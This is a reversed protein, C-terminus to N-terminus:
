LVVARRRQGHQVAFAFSNPLSLRSDFCIRPISKRASIALHSNPSVCAAANSSISVLVTTVSSRWWLRTRRRPTSSSPVLRKLTAVCIPIHWSWDRGDSALISASLASMASEFNTAQAFYNISM